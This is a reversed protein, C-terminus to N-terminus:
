GVSLESLKADYTALFRPKSAKIVTVSHSSTPHAQPNYIPYDLFQISFTSLVFPSNGAGLQQCLRQGCTSFVHGRKFKAKESHGRSLKAKRTCGQQLEIEDRRLFYVSRLSNESDCKLRYGKSCEGLRLILFHPVNPHLSVGM